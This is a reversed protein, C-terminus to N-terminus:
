RPALSSETPNYPTSLGKWEAPSDEAFEDEESLEEFFMSM